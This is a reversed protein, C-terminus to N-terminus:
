MWVQVAFCEAYCLIVKIGAVEIGAVRGEVFVAASAFLSEGSPLDGDM